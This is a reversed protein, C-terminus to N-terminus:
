TRWVVKGEEWKGLNINRKHYIRRMEGYQRAFGEEELGGELFSRV